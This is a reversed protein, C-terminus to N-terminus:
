PIALVFHNEGGDEITVTEESKTNWSAPIRDPALKRSDGPAEDPTVPTASEDASTIRVKYTGPPLGREQPLTFKGQEISAGGPRGTTQDVPDFSINGTDLAVNKLTVEGSVAQRNLPDSPGFCGTLSVAALGLFFISWHFCHKTYPM